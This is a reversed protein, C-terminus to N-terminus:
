PTSFAVATRIMGGTSCIRGARLRQKLTIGTRVVVRRGAIAQEVVRLLGGSVAERDFAGATLGVVGPDGHGNV